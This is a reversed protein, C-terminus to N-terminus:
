FPDGNSKSGPSFLGLSTSNHQVFDGCIDPLRSYSENPNNSLAEVDFVIVTEGIDNKITLTDSSNNLNLVSASATHVIAGGFDGTPIGGGFVVYAKMSPLITGPPVVHNPMGSILNTNDYFEYGSIDLNSNSVNVLEVFEDENHVYEGDGNADGDLGSNSPDYLVENLLLSNYQCCGDDTNANSNYNVATPDTCGLIETPDVPDNPSIPAVDETECSFSFVVIALIIYKNKM